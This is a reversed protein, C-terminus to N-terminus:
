GVDDDVVIKERENHDFNIVFCFQKELGDNSDIGGNNQQLM